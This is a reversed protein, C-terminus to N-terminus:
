CCCEGGRSSIVVANFENKLCKYRKKKILKCIKAVLRKYIGTQTKVEVVRIKGDKGEHVKQIKGIPWMNRPLTDDVVVVIDDLSINEKKSYWKTNKNLNVLYEKQWRRWFMDALAQTVRWHKRCNADSIEFEGTPPASGDSCQPLFHNPTLSEPDLADNSVYTLPRSNVMNEAEAILTQLVDEKPHREKLTVKLVNKVSRVLREWSGGMHPSSPPIFKWTISKFCLFESIKTSNFNKIAKILERDASHLNTGNDFHIERPYGRRSIFRRIAMIASDTDLSHAIELHVARISMYTFLVIYRKETRRGVTVVMPGFYDMGTITFPRTFSQLRSEPLQGMEPVQPQVRMKRCFFCETKCKRVASRMKLIWFKQRLENMILEQRQHNFNIHYHEILLKTFRHKQDLIAPHKQFFTLDKVQELREGIRLIGKDDLLPTLTYIRSSKSITRKNQLDAIEQHFCENQVYKIYIEEAKEVESCELNTSVKRKRCNNIFRLMWATARILRRYKSFRDLSPLYSHTITTTLITERKMELEMEELPEDTEKPWHNKPFTLFQPGILWRSENARFFERTSEDAVNDEGSVWHWNSVDTIETIEGVRVAVFTKYRKTQSRIWHLVIRSDTWLYIKSINIELSEKVSNMLRSLMVAAQLELRPITIQKIPAVRTKASVFSSIINKHIFRLYVVASFAKESSDCFGHLEVEESAFLHCGYCRPVCTEKINNLNELLQIWKTNM